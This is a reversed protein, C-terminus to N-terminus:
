VEAARTAVKYDVGLADQFHKQGCTVKHREESRLRTLDTTDKTERVLYLAPKGDEERLVIAWDPNYEGVPTVVKFWGPLKVYMLVDERRDLDRAFQEEVASDFLVHDYLGHEVRVLQSTFAEFESDFLAMCYWEGTKEYQIGDVLQEALRSKIAASLRSAFELPNEVAARPQRSHQITRLVTQRTLRMRPTTEAMLHLTLDVLDLARDKLVAVGVERAGTTAVGTFRGGQDVEIVSRTATIRPATFTARELDSAVERVLRDTDVQVAYRTKHKIREWLEKFEPKLLYQKRLRVRKRKRAEVPRPPATGAGFEEEIESQYREAYSAYHENAVVTLVNIKEDHVRRGNQDVALRIGRGIEQRKRMTSATQNLTCIQFVNPNDWGERLASHSFIFCVPEDFSLLREKDRMILNYAEEDKRAEGSTSDEYVVDGDRTKHSAFYAAQVVSAPLTRWRESGSKVREFEEDFLRRIVGGAEIYNAVRDIFLLSLVKVGHGEVDRQRRLHAEITERIQARFLAERDEGYGQGVAVSVGNAFRVRGVARDLEEVTFGEYQPLNSKERLSDDPGVTVTREKVTGDRLLQHIRVKAVMRSGSAKIQEVRIFPRNFDDSEEVGWVALRKVLGLRYAEAPTLRHVLNYPNRHTASYRLAMLPNLQTLANRSLDSEMNQPEDLIVVPRTAQVLHIPTEGQLRDTDRRIVNTDKNFAAMTLVMIEVADSMAFQRIQTLNESQYAFFRYPLNRYVARFHEATIGLTKLVGEKIAVSPVVVIFKRLGYRQYLELATRLYIYTKGTGTEMEVSFNYFRAHAPGTQGSYEGEIVALQEDPTLGNEAQVARLNALLTADPDAFRLQNPITAFGGGLAFAMEVEVFPHGALLDVVSRIAQLQFDQHADFQLRM